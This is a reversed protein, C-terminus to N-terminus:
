PYIRIEVMVGTDLKSAMTEFWVSINGSSIQYSVPTIKVDPGAKDEFLLTEGLAFIVIKADAVETISTNYPFSGNLGITPGQTWNFTKGTTNELVTVTVPNGSGSDGVLKAVYSTYSVGGGGGGAALEAISGSLELFNNDVENATLNSGKESRLTIAM